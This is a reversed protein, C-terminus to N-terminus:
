NCQIRNSAFLFFTFFYLIFNDIFVFISNFLICLMRVQGGQDKLSLEIAKALEDDGGATAGGLAEDDDTTGQSLDILDM